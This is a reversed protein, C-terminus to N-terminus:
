AGHLIIGREYINRHLRVFPDTYEIRKYYTTKSYKEACCPCIEDAGIEKSDYLKSLMSNIDCERILKISDEFLMEFGFTSGMFYPWSITQYIGPKIPNFAVSSATEKSVIFFLEEPATPKEYSEECLQCINRYNDDYCDDCMIAGQEDHHPEELEWDYLERGCYECPMVAHITCQSNDDKQIKEM